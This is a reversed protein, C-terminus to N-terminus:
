DPYGENQKLQPNKTLEDLSFPLVYNIEGFKLQVGGNNKLPAFKEEFAKWRKLDFYRLGEFALEVRREHRILDRLSERTAYKTRDILPLGVDARTRIADLVDFITADPGTAENKAEAYMLLIDAYRIHIIHQDTLPNKDRGFPLRSLDVYKQMYAFDPNGGVFESGNPNIYKEGIYKITMDFRPDRGLAPKSIDYGSSPDTIKKGNKMEYEDILNKYAGVSNYWGIEVDVGEGPGTQYQTLALFQVSFMIEPSGLQTATLFLGKYSPALGFKKGEIIQRTLDATEQWRNQSILVRAKLGLASGKVAHGNYGEDPLNAIAFDLDEAIFALVEAKTSQIIKGEEITKPATKHIIVGGYATVLDFYFLARLFRVEAKYKTKIADSTAVRDINELFYNCGAIGQYPSTYFEAAVSTNNIIGIQANGFGYSGTFGNDAYADLYPRRFSFFGANLKSYVGALGIDADAQDKWFTTSEISDLPDRTLDDTCSPLFAVVAFVLFTYTKYIRQM